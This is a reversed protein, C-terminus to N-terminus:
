KKNYHREMLKIYEEITSLGVSARRENLKEPEIVPKPEYTGNIKNMQTGYVQLQGTNCKVRDLLYAYNSWSAKGKEAEIKMATLVSDQFMPYMDQHQVMLWFDNSGNVGVIDHNPFGYKYFIRRAELSNMKDTLMMNKTILSPNISDKPIEGKNYRTYLNRWKQDEISLSDLRAILKKDKKLENGQNTKIIELLTKWRPNNYLSKFSIDMTVRSYDAYFLKTAIKELNYLASDPYGALAWSCAANYRAEQHGKWGNSKFAQSYTDASEKYNKMKFLSDAKKTLTYYETPNQGHLATFAFLILHGLLKM